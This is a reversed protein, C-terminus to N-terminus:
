FYPIQGATQEWTDFGCVYFCVVVPHQRGGTVKWSESTFQQAACTFNQVEKYCLEWCWATAKTPLFFIHIQPGIVLVQTRYSILLKSSTVQGRQVGTQKRYSLSLMLKEHFRQKAEALCPTRCFRKTFQSPCYFYSNSNLWGIIQTDSM